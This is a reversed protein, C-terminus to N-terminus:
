LYTFSLSPGFPLMLATVTGYFYFRPDIAKALRYAVLFTWVLSAEMLPAVAITMGQHVQKSFLM